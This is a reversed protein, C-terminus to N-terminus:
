NKRSGGNLLVCLANQLLLALKIIHYSHYRHQSTWSPGKGTISSSALKRICFSAFFGLFSKFGPMRTSM